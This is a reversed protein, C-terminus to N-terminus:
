EEYKKKFDIIGNCIAQALSQRYSKSRLKKEDSRNSIFASEVLINPCPHVMCFMFDLRVFAMGMPNANPQYKSMLLPLLIRVRKTILIKLMLLWYSLPM